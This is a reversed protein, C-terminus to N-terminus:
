QIPDGQGAATQDLVNDSWGPRIFGAYPIDIGTLVKKVVPDRPGEELVEVEDVDLVYLNAVRLLNYVAFADNGASVVGM